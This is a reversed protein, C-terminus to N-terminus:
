RRLRQSAGRAKLGERAQLLREKVGPYNPNLELIRAYYDEAFDFDGRWLAMDAQKEFLDISNIIMQAPIIELRYTARSADNSLLAYAREVARQIATISDRIRDHLAAPYNDLTYLSKQKLYGEDIADRYSTWHTMLTEFLTGRDLSAAWDIVAQVRDMDFRNFDVREEFTMLGLHELRLALRTSNTRNMNSITMSEWFRRGDGLVEDYFHREKSTFGFDELPIPLRPSKVPYLDSRAERIRTLMEHDIAEIAQSAIAAAIRPVDVPKVNVHYPLIDLTHYFCGGSKIKLMAGIMFKLRIQRTLALQADSFHGMEMLIEGLDRAQARERAQAADLHPPDVAHTQAVLTSLAYTTSDPLLQADVPQGKQLLLHFTGTNSQVTFVGNESFAMAGLLRAAVAQQEVRGSRNAKGSTLVRLMDARTQDDPLAARGHPEGEPPPQAPSPVAAIQARAAQVTTTTFAVGTKALPPQEDRARAARAATTTYAIGSRALPPELPEPASQNAPEQPTAQDLPPTSGEDLPALAAPDEDASPAAGEDSSPPDPTLAAEIPSLAEVGDQTAPDPTPSPDASAHLDSSPGDDTAPDAASPDPPSTVPPEDAQRPALALSPPTVPAPPAGMCRQLAQEWQAKLGPQDIDPVIAISSGAQYVARGTLHISAQGAIHVSMALSAGASLGEMAEVILVKLDQVQDNLAIFHAPTPLHIEIKLRTGQRSLTARWPTGKSM